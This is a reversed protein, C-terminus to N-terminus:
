PAAYVSAIKVVANPVPVVVRTNDGAPEDSDADFGSYVIVLAISAVKVGILPAYPSSDMIVADNTPPVNARSMVGYVFSGSM